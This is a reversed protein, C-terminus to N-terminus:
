YRLQSNHKVMKGIYGSKNRKGVAATMAGTESKEDGFGVVICKQGETQINKHIILLKLELM